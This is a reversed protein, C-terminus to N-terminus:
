TFTHSESGKLPSFNKKLTSLHTDDAFRLFRRCKDNRKDGGFAGPVKEAGGGGGDRRMGAPANADMLMVAGGKSRVESTVDSPENTTMHWLLFSQTM